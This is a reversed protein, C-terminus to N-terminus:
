IYFAQDPHVFVLTVLDDDAVLVLCYWAISRKIFYNGMSAVRPAERHKGSLLSLILWRLWPRLIYGLMM